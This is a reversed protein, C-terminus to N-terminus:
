KYFVKGLCGKEEDSDGEKDGKRAVKVGHIKIYHGSCLTYGLDVGNCLACFKKELL